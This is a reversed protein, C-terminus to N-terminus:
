NGACPKSTGVRAKGYGRPYIGPRTTWLRSSATWTPPFGARSVKRSGPKLNFGSSSESALKTKRIARALLTPNATGVHHDGLIKTLRVAKMAVDPTERDHFWLIALAKDAQVKNLKKVVECFDDLSLHM